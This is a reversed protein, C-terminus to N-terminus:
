PTKVHKRMDKVREAMQAHNPHNPFLKVYDELVLLARLPDNRKLFVNHLQLFPDPDKDAGTEISTMLHDVAQEFKNLRYFASGLYYHDRPKMQDLSELRSLWDVVKQFKETNWSLEGLLSLPRPDSPRLATARELTRIADDVKGQRQQENSLAMHAEYFKTAESIARKFHADPLNNRNPNRVADVGKNFAEMAKPPITALTTADINYLAADVSPPSASDDGRRTLRIFLEKGTDAPERLLLPQEFLKFRSDVVEVAYNGLPVDNFVFTGNAFAQASRSAGGVAMLPKLIVVAVVPEDLGVVLRGNLRFLQPIAYDSATGTVIQVALLFAIPSM